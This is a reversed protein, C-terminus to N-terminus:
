RVFPETNSYVAIISNVWFLERQHYKTAPTLSSTNETINVGAGGPLNGAFWNAFHRNERFAIVLVFGITIKVSM